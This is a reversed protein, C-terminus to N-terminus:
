TESPSTPRCPHIAGSADALALTSGLADTLFDQTGSSDTRQFFEDINLGTLMEATVNPPSAGDLEEVPNLGDYLFQTVTGNVNKAVRRGLADYVFAASNPGTISVLHNRADWTYTNTGDNARSSDCVLTGGNFM